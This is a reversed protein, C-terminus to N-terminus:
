EKEKLHDLRPKSNWCDTCINVPLRYITDGIHKGCEECFVPTTKKKESM